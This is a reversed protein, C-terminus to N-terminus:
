CTSSHNCFSSLGSQGLTFRQNWSRKSKQEKEAEESEEDIGKMTKWVKKREDKIKEQKKTEKNDGKEELTRDKENLEM